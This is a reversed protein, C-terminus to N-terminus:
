FELAELRKIQTKLSTIKQRKTAQARTVASERTRHWQKGEGHFFQWFRTSKDIVIDSGMKPPDVEHETIGQTLAYKTVWVKM